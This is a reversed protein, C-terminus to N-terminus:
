INAWEASVGIRPIEYVFSLALVVVLMGGRETTETLCLALM